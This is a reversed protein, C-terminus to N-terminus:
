TATGDTIAMDAIGTTTGEIGGMAVLLCQGCHSRVHLALTVAASDGLKALLLVLVLLVLVLLVLVLELALAVALAMVAMGMLLHWALQAVVVVVVVVVVPQTQLWHLRKALM